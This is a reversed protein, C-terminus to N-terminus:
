EIYIKLRLRQLEAHDPYLSQLTALLGLAADYNQAKQQRQVIRIGEALIM